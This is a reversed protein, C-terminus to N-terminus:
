WFELWGSIIAMQGAFYIIASVVTTVAFKLLLRPREPASPVHGEEVDGGREHASQNGWPLVAFLVTWWIIFYIAIASFLSM